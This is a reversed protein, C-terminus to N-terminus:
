VTNFETHNWPNFADARLQLSTREQLRFTKYLSMDWNNTGPMSIFNRSTTAFTGIQPLVDNAPNFWKGATRDGFGLVPSGTVQPRQRLTTGVGAQDIGLVPDIPLGTQFTTIGSLQWGGLIKGTLNTQNRLFPIEWVYN